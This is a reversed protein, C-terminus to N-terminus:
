RRSEKREECDTEGQAHRWGHADTSALDLGLEFVIIRSDCRDIGREFGVVDVVVVRKTENRKTEHLRRRWFSSVSKLARM